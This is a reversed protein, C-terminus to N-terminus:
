GAILFKLESASDVSLFPISRKFYVEYNDDSRNKFDEIQSSIFKEFEEVINNWENLSKGVNVWNYRTHRRGDKPDNDVYLPNFGVQPKFALGDYDSEDEAGYEALIDSYSNNHMLYSEDCFLVEYFKAFNPIKPYKPLRLYKSRVGSAGRGAQLQELALRESILKTDVVIEFRYIPRMIKPPRTLLEPPQIHDALNISLINSSTDSRISSETSFDTLLMSHSSMISPSSSGSRISTSLSTASTSKIGLVRHAAVGSKSSVANSTSTAEMIQKDDTSLIKLIKGLSSVLSKGTTHVREDTDTDSDSPSADVSMPSSPLSSCTYIAEDFIEYPHTKRLENLNSTDGNKPTTLLGVSTTATNTPSLLQNNSPPYVDDRIVNPIISFKRNVLPNDPKLLVTSDGTGRMTCLYDFSYRLNRDIVKELSLPYNRSHNNIGILRWIILKIYYTRVIPEWHNFFTSWVPASVLWNSFNWKLSEHSVTLWRESPTVGLKGPRASPSIMDWVNFLFAFNKLLIQIHDTREIMLQCSTLWFEWNIDNDVHNIFEYVINLLLGNRNYDYVSTRCAISILLKDVFKVLTKTLLINSYKLDRCTKLIKVISNYYIDNMSLTPIMSEKGLGAEKPFMNNFSSSNYNRSIRSISVQFVHLIHSFIVKSGPANFLLTDYDFKSSVVLSEDHDFFYSNCIAIYHRFFSNFIDSDSSSWRRVWSGNPDTIGKVPHKPPAVSNIFFKLRKSLKPMGAFDQLHQPFLQAVSPESKLDCLGSMAEEFVFQKVNLLFLLADSVLPLHFYANAFVKGVFASISLPLIKMVQAKDIAYDLTITLLSQFKQYTDADVDFWERRSVIRSIGELYANRDTSSIAVPKLSHQKLTLSTLLVRWWRLFVNTSVSVLSLYIRRDHKQAAFDCSPDRLFPLLSTRLINTKTVGNTKSNFKSIDIELRKLQKLSRQIATDDAQPSLRSLPRPCGGGFKSTGATSDNNKNDVSSVGSAPPTALALPAADLPKSKRMLLVRSM